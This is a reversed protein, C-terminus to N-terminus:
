ISYWVKGKSTCKTAILLVKRSYQVKHKSTCNTGPLVVKFVTSYRTNLHVIPQQYDESYYGAYYDEM